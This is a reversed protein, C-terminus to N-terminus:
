VGRVRHGVSVRWEQEARHVSLAARVDSRNRGAIGLEREISANRTDASLVRTNGDYSITGSPLRRSPATIRGHTDAATPDGGGAHWVALRRRHSGSLKRQREVGVTPPPQLRDM